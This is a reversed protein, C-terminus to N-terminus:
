AGGKQSRLKRYTTYGQAGHQNTYPYQVFGRPRRIGKAKQENEAQHEACLYPCTFDREDFTEKIDPYYDYLRVEYVAARTCGPVSCLKEM